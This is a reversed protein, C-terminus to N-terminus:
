DSQELGEKKQQSLTKQLERIKQIKEEIKVLARVSLRKGTLGGVVGGLLVGVV